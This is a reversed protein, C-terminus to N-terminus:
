KASITLNARYVGDRGRSLSELTVESIKDENREYSVLDNLFSDLASNDASTISLTINGAKDVVLSSIQASAPLLNSVISFTARQKSPVSSLQNITSLRTKLAVLSAEKVKSDVVRQSIQELNGQASSVSQSQFIRLAVTTSALFALALVTLISLYQVKYFKSQEAQAKRFEVPLLNITIKSM